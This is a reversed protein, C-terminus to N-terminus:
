KDLFDYPNWSATQQKVLPREKVTVRRYTMWWSAMLYTVVFDDHIEDTENNSSRHGTKENVTGKFRQLQLKFDDLHKLNDATRLRGQQLMVMGAHVMDEKPVHMEKVVSTGAFRGSGSGFVKGFDAYVPRVETGGTFVIPMPMLGGERMIDVVAEGVGTGDVLLQVNNLLNVRKLLEKVMRAQDTYRMGQVKAQYTLDMNNIIQDQRGSERPYHKIEPTERYIQITTYDRKKALDVSCIFEKSTAFLSSNYIESM